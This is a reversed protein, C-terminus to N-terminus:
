VNFKEKFIYDESFVKLIYNDNIKRFKQTEKRKKMILNFNLLVYFIAKIRAFALGFRLTFVDKAIAILRLFLVYPLFLVINKIELIKFFTIM